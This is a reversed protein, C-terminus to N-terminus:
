AGVVCQLFANNLVRIVDRQRLITCTPNAVVTCVSIHRIQISQIVTGMHNYM